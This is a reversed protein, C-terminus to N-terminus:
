IVRFRHSIIKKSSNQFDPLPVNTGGQRSQNFTMKLENVEKFFAGGDIEDTGDHTAARHIKRRVLFFIFEFVRTQFNLGYLRQSPPATLIYAAHSTTDSTKENKFSGFSVM